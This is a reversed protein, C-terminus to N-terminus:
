ILGLFFRSYIEPSIFDVNNLIKDKLEEVLAKKNKDKLINPQNAVKEM